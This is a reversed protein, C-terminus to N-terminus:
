SAASNLNQELAAIAEIIADFPPPEGFIMDSMARYDLRLDDIM